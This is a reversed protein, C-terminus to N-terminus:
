YNIKITVVLGMTKQEDAYVVTRGMLLNYSQQYEIGNVYLKGPTHFEVRNGFGAKFYTKNQDFGTPGVPFNKLKLKGRFYSHSLSACGPAINEVVLQGKFLPRSARWGLVALILAVLAGGVIALLIPLTLNTVKFRFTVDTYAGHSDTARVVLDGSRSRGTNVELQSNELKVTNEVLQSSIVEYQLSTDQGDTFLKSLDQRYSHGTVPTVIKKVTKVGDVIKNKDADVLVPATNNWSLSLRNAAIKLEEQKLEASVQYSGSPLNELSCVFHSDEPEMEITDVTQGDALSTITVVAEYEDTVEADQIEQGDQFLTLELEATEGEDYSRKEDSTSLKATIDVNYLINMLVTSGPQGQLSFNWEGEEPSVIKIVKYNGATIANKELEKSTYTRGQNEASVNIQENQDGNLILNIERAGYAPVEAELHILGNEPFRIEEAESSSTAFILQYFQEFAETLQDPTEITVCTGSTRNSISQLEAPDAVESASLCISYIPIQDEQARTIAEEKKELSAKYAKEDSGLDTRGDSFLIISSPLGNSASQQELQEVATLLASGIDTDGGTGAAEIQGALDLKEDKGAISQMGTNLRYGDKNDDFVIAGVHNGQDTLLAMFLRIADYRVNEKDTGSHESVLSGSGDIVLMVNLWSAGKGVQEAARVPVAVMCLIMLCALIM